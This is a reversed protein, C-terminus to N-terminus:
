YRTSGGHRARLEAVRDDMHKTYQVIEEDKIESWVQLAALKLNHISNHAGLIDWIRHKLLDWLPEIPNLDPSNGPHFASTIGLEQRKRKAHGKHPPAGDEMVFVEKGVEETIQLWFDKLPGDLVQKAYGASDLGKNKWKKTKADYVPDPMELIIAPGKKNHTIAGWM